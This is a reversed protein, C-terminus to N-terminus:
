LAELKARRARHTALKREHDEILNDFWNVYNAPFTETNGKLMMVVLLDYGERPRIEIVKGAQAPSM